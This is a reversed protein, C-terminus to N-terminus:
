LRWKISPNTPNAGSSGHVQGRSTSKKLDPKESELDDDDRRCCWRRLVLPLLGFFISLGGLVFM